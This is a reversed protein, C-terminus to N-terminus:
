WKVLVAERKGTFTPHQEIAHLRRSYYPVKGELYDALEGYTLVRDNNADAEGRIGSLFFYTFIGHSKEPFWGAVEGEKGATITNLDEYGKDIVPVVTLPSIGKLLMGKQTNGSFCADIVVTKKRAPIASINEFLIDLPYGNV